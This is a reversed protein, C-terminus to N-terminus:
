LLIKFAEIYTQKYMGLYIIVGEVYDKEEWLHKESKLNLDYEKTLVQRREIKDMKDIIGVENRVISIKM